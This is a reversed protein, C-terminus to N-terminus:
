HSLANVGELINWLNKGNEGGFIPGPLEGEISKLGGCPDDNHLM